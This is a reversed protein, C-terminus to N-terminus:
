ALTTQDSPYHNAVAVKDSKRLRPSPTEVVGLTPHLRGIMTLAYTRNDYGQTAREITNYNDTSRIRWGWEQRHDARRKWPYLQVFFDGNFDLVPEAPLFSPAEDSM